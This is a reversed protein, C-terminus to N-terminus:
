KKLMLSNIFWNSITESLWCPDDLALDHGANPNLYFGIGWYKALNLTCQYSAIRDKKSAILCTHEIPKRKPAQYKIAAIIQQLAAKRSPQYQKRLYLWHKLLVQDRSFVESSVKLIEEESKSMLPHFWAKIFSPYAMPQLRQYFRSVPKVSSNIMVLSECYQPFRKALELAVLGGMSIGVLHIKQGAESVYQELRPVLLEAIKEISAPSEVSNRLGFGPLDEFVIRVGQNKDRFSKNLIQPFEGWHAQQRSLGRILLFTNM